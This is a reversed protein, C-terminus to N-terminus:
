EGGEALHGLESALNETGPLGELLKLAKGAMKASESGDGLSLCARAAVALARARSLRTFDAGPMLEYGTLAQVLAERPENRKMHLLALNVHIGSRAIGERGDLAERLLTRAEDLREGSEILLAAINSNLSSKLSEDREIARRYFEEAAGSEGRGGAVFGLQAIATGSSDGKEIAELILVEARDFRGARILFYILANSLPCSVSKRNRNRDLYEIMGEIDGRAAMISAKRLQRQKWIPSRVLRVALYTVIALMVLIVLHFVDM